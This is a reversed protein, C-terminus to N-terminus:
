ESEDCVDGQRRKVQYRVHIRQGCSCEIEYIIAYILQIKEPTALVEIKDLKNVLALLDKQCKPCLSTRLPFLSIVEGM